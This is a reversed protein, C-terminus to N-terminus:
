RVWSGDPAWGSGVGRLSIEIGLSNSQVLKGEDERGREEGRGEEGLGGDGGGYFGGFGGDVGLFDAGVDGEEGVVQEFAAAGTQAAAFRAALYMAM